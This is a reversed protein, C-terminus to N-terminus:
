LSDDGPEEGLDDMAEDVLQDVEGPYDEGLEEGMRKLVRAVSKPDNEDLGSWQGPDALRELRTDESLRVHVRSLIRELSHSGCRECVPTFPEQLNLVLFSSVRRCERCRYEYIPM